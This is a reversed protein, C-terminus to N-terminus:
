LERYEDFFFDGKKKWSYMLLGGFIAGGLHAFHAVNDWEFNGVGLFLEVLMIIPMFYKAKLGVPIFIVQLKANPFLIAFSALLGMIAGSAGVMAGNFKANMSGLFDDVYNQGNAIAEAGETQLKELLDLPLDSLQFWVIGLHLAFAGVASFFYLITFKKVGLQREITSGFMVLAYMNFLLHSLGAHMFIHTLAQHPQFLPSEFYHLALLQDLEPRFSALAFMIVNIILLIKTAKPLNQLLQTIM